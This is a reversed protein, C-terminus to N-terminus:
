ADFVAAGDGAFREVYDFAAFVCNASEAEALKTHAMVSVNDAYLDGAFFQVTGQTGGDRGLEGGDEFREAEFEDREVQFAEAGTRHVGQQRRILKAACALFEAIWPREM